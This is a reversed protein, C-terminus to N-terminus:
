EATIRAYAEFHVYNVTGTTAGFEIYGLEGATFTDNTAVDTDSTDTTACTITETDNTGDTLNLVKSTGGTVFCKFQTFELGDKHNFAALTQGSTFALSTSAITVSVVRFEDHAVVRATNGGDACKLQDDTTDWACEGTADVTPAAANPIEFSTAGGADITGTLTINSLTDIAAEIATELAASVTDFANEITTISTSDLSDLGNLTGTNTLTITDTNFECGAQALINNTQTLTCDGNDWNIVAGEAAFFDSFQNTVSGLALGDNTTPYLAAGILELEDAETANTMVRLTLKGDESGNTTDTIVAKINAYNVDAAAANNGMFRVQGVVDAAAPSASQHNLLFDNGLAGANPSQLEHGGSAGDLYFEGGNLDSLYFYSGGNTAIIDFTSGDEAEGYIAGSGNDTAIAYVSSGGNTVDFSSVTTSALSVSLANAYVKDLTKSYTFYAEGNFSGADNFQIQTTAGGPTGCPQWEFDGGTNEYSLCDEDAAADVAKLDAELIENDTIESSTIATGLTSTLSTGSLVLGTGTLDTLYDSGVTLATSVNLRPFTSTATTSTATLYPLQVYDGDKPYLYAGVDNWESSGGVGGCSGWSNETGNTTLCEGNDPGTALQVSVFPDGFAGLTPEPANLNNYLFAGSLSTALGILFAIFPM